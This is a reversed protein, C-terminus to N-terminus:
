PPISAADSVVRRSPAALDPSLFQRASLNIAVPVLSMGANQWEKLQRCVARVVWDRGARDLGVGGPDGHFGGASRTRPGSAALAAASGRRLGAERPRSEAPLVAGARRARACPATAGPQLRERAHASMERHLVSLHQARAGERPVDRRGRQAILTKPATGDGPFDHHGRERDRVTRTPSRRVAHALGEVIKRAVTSTRPRPSAGSCSRSNTAPSAHSPTTGRARPWSASRRRACCADGASARAPREDDQLQGPRRVARRAARRPAEGARDDARLPRRAAHPQRAGHAPRVPCPLRAQARYRHASPRHFAADGRHAPLRAGRGLLCGRPVVARLLAGRVTNDGRVAVVAASGFKPAWAFPLASGSAVFPESSTFAMEVANGAGFAMLGRDGGTDGVGARLVLEGSQPGPEVYVVADAGVGEVVTELAEEILEQPERKDLAAQGFRALSAQYRLHAAEREDAAVRETLDRANVVLIPGEPTDHVTRRVEVPFTSGDKRRYVATTTDSREDSAVLNQWERQLVASPRDVRIESSGRNLLEERTYGLQRCASENFDIFRRQRMDVLLVM